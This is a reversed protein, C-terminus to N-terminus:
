RSQHESRKKRSGECCWGRQIIKFAKEVMAVVIPTEGLIELIKILDDVSNNTISETAKKIANNADTDIIDPYIDTMFSGWFETGKLAYRLKYDQARKMDSSHFAEWPQVEHPIIDHSAPNLGVFVYKKNAVHLINEESLPCMDAVGDKSKWNNNSPTGWIAWSSTKGFHNLLAAYM